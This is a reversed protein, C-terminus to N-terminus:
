KTGGMLVRRLAQNEERLMRNQQEVESERKHLSALEYGRQHLMWFLPADNGCHDMLREFKEWSIGEQNSLWRSFQGKDVGLDAQLRKDCDFGAAKICLDIAGGLTKEREVERPSVDAPLSIQTSM